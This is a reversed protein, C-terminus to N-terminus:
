LINDNDNNDNDNLNFDKEYKNYTIENPNFNFNENTKEKLINEELYNDNEDLEKEKSGNKNLIIDYEKLINGELYGGNENLEKEKSDDKNSIINYEKLGKMIEVFENVDNLYNLPYTNKYENMARLRKYKNGEEEMNKEEDSKEVNEEEMNKEEDSKEVNEEEMNKEEDSQEMNEEEVDEEVDEEVNEEEVGEVDEEEMNKEEDSKEINEEEMNKEEDSKEMNEEEINEEEDSKEINEEEMNEEEVDEEVGEVDEEEEYRKEKNNKKKGNSFKIDDLIENNNISTLYDDYKTEKTLNDFIDELMEKLNQGDKIIFYKKCMKELKNIMNNYEEGKTDITKLNEFVKKFIEKKEKNFCDRLTKIMGKKSDLNIKGSEPISLYLHYKINNARDVASINIDKYEKSFNGLCNKFEDKALIKLMNIKILKVNCDKKKNEYVKDKKFTVYRVLDFEKLIELYKSHDKENKLEDFINEFNVNADKSFYKKITDELSAKMKNYKSSNIELKKLNEILTDGLVDDKMGNFYEKIQESIENKTEENLEVEEKPKVVNLVNGINKNSKKLILWFDKYGKANNETFISEIDQKKFKEKIIDTALYRLINLKMTTTDDYKIYKRVKKADGKYECDNYFNVSTLKIDEKKLIELYKSYDKEEKLKDFIYEIVSNIKQGNDTYFSKKTRKVFFTILKEYKTDQKEIAKLKKILTDYFVVNKLSNFYEEIQTKINKKITNDVKKLNPTIIKFNYKYGNTKECCFSFNSYNIHNEKLIEGIKKRDIKKNFLSVSLYKLINLKIEEVIEKINFIGNKINVLKFKDESKEIVGNNEKQKIDNTKLMNQMNMNSKKEGSKESKIKVIKNPKNKSKVAFCNISVFNVSALIFFGLMIKKFKDM